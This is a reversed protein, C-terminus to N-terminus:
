LREPSVLEQCYLKASESLIRQKETVHLPKRSFYKSNYRRFKEVNVIIKILQIMKKCPTCYLCCM